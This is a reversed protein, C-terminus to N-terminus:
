TLCSVRMTRPWGRKETFRVTMPPESRLSGSLLTLENFNPSAAHALLGPDYGEAYTTM